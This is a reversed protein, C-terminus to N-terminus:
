FSRMVVPILGPLTLGPILGSSAGGEKWVLWRQPLILDWSWGLEISM